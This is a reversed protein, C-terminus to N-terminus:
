RWRAKAANSAAVSRQKSTMAQARAHGGILGGKRGLEVASRHVKVEDWYRELERSHWTKGGTVVVEQPAATAGVLFLLLM